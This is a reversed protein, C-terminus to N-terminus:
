FTAPAGGGSEWVKNLEDQINKFGLGCAFLWMLFSMGQDEANAIGARQQAEQILKGYKIPLYFMYWPGGCFFATLCILGVDLTPNLDEKGLYNKLENGITYWWYLMYIGCTFICLLWTRVPNRVEGKM